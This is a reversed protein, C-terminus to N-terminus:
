AYFHVATGKCGQTSSGLLCAETLELYLLQIECLLTKRRENVHRVSAHGITVTDDVVSKHVSRKTRICNIVVSGIVLIKDEIVLLLM